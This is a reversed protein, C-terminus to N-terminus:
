RIVASQSSLPITATAAKAAQVPATGGGTAVILAVKLRVLDDAMAPLRNDQGGRGTNSPWM